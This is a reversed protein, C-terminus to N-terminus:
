QQHTAEDINTAELSRELRESNSGNGGRLGLRGLSRKQRMRKNYYTKYSRDRPMPANTLVVGLVPTGSQGLQDGALQLAESQTAWSQAVLVAADCNRALLMTDAVILLPASDLLVIDAHQKLDEILEAMRQSALLEAPNPSLPGSPMLRLNEVSTSVLHCDIRDPDDRLLVRTIGRANSKDFFSHLSPQRLNADVLIVRRGAQACAIALNAVTVSKGENPGASTVFIARTAQDVSSLNVRTWLIRYAEAAPSQPDTIMILGSSQGARKFKGVTALTPRDIVAEVDAESKVSDDFYETLFIAGLALLGGLVSALLTNLLIKPRVPINKPQAVEFVSLSNSIRAETLQQNFVRVIENAITAARQPNSDEVTLVVLQTDRVPIVTVRETLLDVPMGLNLNTNVAEMVTQKRLLETYTKALSQSALLSDYNPLVDSQQTQKVWLTTSAEYTPPIQTSVVFATAGALMTSLVFVWSWQKLLLLFRKAEM